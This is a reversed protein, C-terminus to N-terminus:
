KGGALQSLLQADPDDLGDRSLAPALEAREADHRARIGGPYDVERRPM